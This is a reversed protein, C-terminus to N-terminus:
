LFQIANWVRLLFCFGAYYKTLNGKNERQFVGLQLCCLHISLGLLLVWYIACLSLTLFKLQVCLSPYCHLQSAFYWISCSLVFVFKLTQTLILCVLRDSIYFPTLENEEPWKKKLDNNIIAKFWQIFNITAKVELIEWLFMICQYLTLILCGDCIQRITTNIVKFCTRAKTCM